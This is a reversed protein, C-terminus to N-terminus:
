QNTIQVMQISVDGDIKLANAEYCPVRHYYECHHRGDIAIQVACFKIKM